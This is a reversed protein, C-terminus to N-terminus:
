SGVLLKIKDDYKGNIPIELVKRFKVSPLIWLNFPNIKRIELVKNKDDLWIIYFPFFVFFSHFRVKVDKKFFDFLLPKARDKRKFMLGLWSMWWSIVLVNLCIKKGKHKLCIKKKKMKM